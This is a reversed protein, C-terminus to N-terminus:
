ALCAAVGPERLFRSRTSDRRHSLLLVKRPRTVGVYLVRRSEDISGRPHPMRGEQLDVICVADFERGKASHLTLLRLSGDPNAFTGLDEVGLEEPDINRNARIDAVIANGAQVLEDVGAPRLLGHEVMVRGFAGAAQEIWPIATSHQERLERARFILRTAALRGPRAWVEFRTVGDIRQLIDLMEYQIKPLLHPRTTEVCACVNELLGTLLRGRRNYPRSGPGSVAVGLRRLEQAIPILLYWAPALVAADAIDIGERDLLPLFAGVVADIGSNAVVLQPTADYDRDPGSAQMPTDRPGIADAVQVIWDSSRWNDNLVFDDRANIHQALEFMREPEAGAFGLISQLPDGVLVFRSRGVDALQMLLQVQLSDTDQMEDILIERFRSSVTRALHSYEALLWFAYYTISPFDVYGDQQLLQWFGIVCEETLATDTPILPEGNVGRRVGEFDATRVATGLGTSLAAASAAREFPESDPPAVALGSEYGAIRGHFLRLISRLCFAHITGIDCYDADAGSVCHRVRREIENAGANTYTICAVRRPTDRVLEIARILRAVITRTKGSGPCAIVLVNRHEEDVAARQAPTLRM